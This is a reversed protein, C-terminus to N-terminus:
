RRTVRALGVAAPTLNPDIDLAARYAVAADRPLDQYELALGFNYWSSADDPRVRLVRRFLEAAGAFDDLFIAATGRTAIADIDDPDQAILEDLLTAAEGVSENSILVRALNYKAYEYEPSLELAQRFASEAEALRGERYADIGRGTWYEPDDPGPAGITITRPGEEVRPEQRAEYAGPEADFYFAVPEGLPGPDATVFIETLYLVAEGSRALGIGVHSFEPDMRNRRHGPSSLLAAHLRVVTRNRAVNEALRPVEPFAIRVRREASLGYEPSYHGVRGRYAMEQSHYDALMSLAPDLQLPGLGAEERSENLLRLAEDVEDQLGEQAGTGGTLGFIVCCLALRSSVGIM